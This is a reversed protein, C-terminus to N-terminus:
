LYLGFLATKGFFRRKERDGGGRAASHRTDVPGSAKHKSMPIAGPVRSIFDWIM